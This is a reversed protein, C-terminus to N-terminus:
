SSTLIMAQGAHLSSVLLPHLPVLNDKFLRIYLWPSYYLLRKLSRQCRVVVVSVPILIHFFSGLLALKSCKKTIDQIKKIKMLKAIHVIVGKNRANIFGRVGVELQLSNCRFGQSEKDESLDQYRQDKRLRANELGRTSEWPVTLEVLTVEQSSSNRNVIVLDPKLGTITINSPITVGNVRCGELDAYAELGQSVATSHLYQVITNHRWEYRNLSQQCNSLLHGLTCPSISCLPCKPHVIKKWRALPLTCNFIGCVPSVLERSRHPYFSQYM